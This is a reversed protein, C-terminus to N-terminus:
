LSKAFGFLLISTSHVEYDIFNRIIKFIQSIRGTVEM